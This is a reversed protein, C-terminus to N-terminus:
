DNTARLVVSVVQLSADLDSRAIKSAPNLKCHHIRLDLVFAINGYNLRDPASVLLENLLDPPIDLSIMLPDHFPDISSELGLCDLDPEFHGLHLISSNLEGILLPLSNYFLLHPNPSGTPGHASGDALSSQSARPIDFDAILLSSKALSLLWGM